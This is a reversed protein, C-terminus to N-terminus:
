SENLTAGWSPPILRRFDNVDCVFTFIMYSVCPADKPLADTVGFSVARCFRLAGRPVLCERLTCFNKSVITAPITMMNLVSMALGLEATAALTRASHRGLSSALLSRHRGM